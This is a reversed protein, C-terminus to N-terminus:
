STEDEEEEEYISLEKCIEHLINISEIIFTDSQGLDERCYPLRGCYKKIIDEVKDRKVQPQTLKTMDYIDLYKKIASM